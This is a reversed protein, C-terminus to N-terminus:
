WLLHEEAMIRFARATAKQETTLHYSFNKEFVSNLHEIILQSDTFDEGNLTIWPFKGKPGMPQECDM